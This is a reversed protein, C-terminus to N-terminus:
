RVAGAYRRRNALRRVDDELRMGGRAKQRFWIMGDTVQVPSRGLRYVDTAGYPNTRTGALAASRFRQRVAEEAMKSGLLAKPYAFHQPTVGLRDEILKVSRDLEDAVRDPALRDLLAHSHTHSGVTILGTGLADAVAGWSLPTGRHPFSRGSEIFDTALYLTAPLGTAVLVPLARESFDATGDDFTIAVPQAPPVLRSTVASLLADLSVVRFEARLEDMQAEFLAAPLDVAMGSGAGVRHYLLVVAGPRGPRVVDSAAAALKLLRGAANRMM